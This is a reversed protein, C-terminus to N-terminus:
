KTQAPAIVVDSYRNFLSRAWIEPRKGNKPWDIVIPQNTDGAQSQGVLVRLEVPEGTQSDKASITAMGGRKLKSVPPTMEFVVTRPQAALRFTVPPYNEPTITVMPPLLDRHGDARQVEVLKFPLKFPYYTATEGTPNAPARHLQNEFTVLAAVPVHTDPDIAYFTVWGDYDSPLIAPSMWVIPPKTHAVAPGACKQAELVKPKARQDIGLAYIEMFQRCREHEVPNKANPYREDCVARMMPATLDNCFMAGNGPTAYCTSLKACLPKLADRLEDYHDQVWQADMNFGIFVSAAAKMESSPYSECANATACASPVYDDPYPSPPPTTDAAFISLPLLSLLLVRLPLKM